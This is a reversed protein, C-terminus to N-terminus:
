KGLRVNAQLNEDVTEHLRNVTVATDQRKAAHQAHRQSTRVAMRVAYPWLHVNVSSKCWRNAHILMTRAGEQIEKIHREAIGNEHHSNVGAFTLPQNAKRCSEVWKNASFRGNDAHYDKV